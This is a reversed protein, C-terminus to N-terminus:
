GSAATRLPPERRAMLWCSFLSLSTRKDQARSTCCPQAVFCTPCPETKWPDAVIKVVPLTPAIPDNDHIVMAVSSHALDIDYPHSAPPPAILHCYATEDGEYFDDDIPFLRVNVSSQGPLFRVASDDNV